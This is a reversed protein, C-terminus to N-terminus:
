ALRGHSRETEGKLKWSPKAGFSLHCMSSVCFQFELLLCPFPYLPLVRIVETIRQVWFKIKSGFSFELEHLVRELSDSHVIGRNEDTKM